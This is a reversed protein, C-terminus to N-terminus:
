APRAGAAKLQALEARLAVTEARLEATEAVEARLKVIEEHALKMQEDFGKRVTINRGMGIIGIVEGAANRYPLKTTLIHIERGDAGLIMEERNILPMGTSMIAEEDRRFGAALEPPYLDVDRKGRLFATTVGMRNAIVQNALLFRGERDKIYVSDPLGTLLVELLHRETELAIETTKFATEDRSFGFTGIVRGSRDRLPCKWTLWWKVRDGDYTARESLAIIPQGTRMIEQEDALTKQAYEPTLFDADSRGILLATDELQFSRALEQNAALFRGHRDKFYVLDTLLPLLQSLFVSEFQNTREALATGLASDLWAPDLETAVVCAVAHDLLLEQAAALDKRPWDPGIVAASLACAKIAEALGALDDVGPLVRSGAAVPLNKLVQASFGLPLLHPPLPEM